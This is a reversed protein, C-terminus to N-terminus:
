FRRSPSRGQARPPTQHRSSQPQRSARFRRWPSLWGCRWRGSAAATAGTGWAMTWVWSGGVGGRGGPSSGSGLGSGGRLGDGRAQGPAWVRVEGGVGSLLDGWGPNETEVAAIKWERRWRKVSKERAVAVGIEDHWEAWVLTRCGWKACFLSGRGAQHELVRRALDATVGTYLIGRPRNAMIYVWGGKVMAM